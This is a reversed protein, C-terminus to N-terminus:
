QRARTKLAAVLPTASLGHIVISLVITCVVTAALTVGGPLHEDFVIVGFVISALGRPGFWGIFLKEPARLGLGALALFVPLMRILTLSLLAYLVMQWEIHGAARGIVVAGFVVWTILALTDGTGEAALLLAHKHQKALWGFLLGGTFAAIFGSGGLWQAMAFCAVALAPVPLQRWSESIWGMRAFFKFLWAALLTLVAGIVVGLGIQGAVLNLALMSVGGQAPHTAMALFLLLVPVCIGDNLGSEVNLGERITPPVSEDTVVAKGLAADTPALMTALLAIELLALKDFLLVGIGFGLLITLPLGILLLRGPVRFSHKLVDLNSNAADTFLVLSLTLEALLRIQETGASLQLFGFGLPGLLVGFATFVIAGNVPTKALGGSSISYVFVFAALITMNEYM